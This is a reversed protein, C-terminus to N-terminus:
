KKGKKRTKNKTKNKQKTKQKTEELVDSDQLFFRRSFNVRSSLSFLLSLWSLIGPFVGANQSRGGIVAFSDMLIKKPSDKSNREREDTKEGTKGISTIRFSYDQFIYNLIAIEKREREREKKKKGFHIKRKKIAHSSIRAPTEFSDGLIDGLFRMLSSTHVISLLGQRIRINRISFSHKEALALILFSSTPSEWSRDQILGVTFILSFFLLFSFATLHYHFLIGTIRRHRALM